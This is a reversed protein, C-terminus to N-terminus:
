SEIEVSSATFKIGNLRTQDELFYEKVMIDGEKRRNHHNEVYLRISRCM